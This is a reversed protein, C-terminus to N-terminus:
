LIPFNNGFARQSCKDRGFIAPVTSIQGHIQPVVFFQLQLFKLAVGRKQNGCFPQTLSSMALQESSLM